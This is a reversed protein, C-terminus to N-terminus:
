PFWGVDIKIMLLRVDMFTHQVQIIYISVVKCTVGFFGRKAWEKDVKRTKFHIDGIEGINSHKVEM